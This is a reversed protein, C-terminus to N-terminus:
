IQGRLKRDSLIEKVKYEKDKNVLVLPDHQSPDEGDRLRYPELLSVHFVLHIRM